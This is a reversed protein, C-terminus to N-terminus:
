TASDSCNYTCLFLLDVPQQSQEACNQVDLKQPEQDSDISIVVVNVSADKRLAYWQQRILQRIQKNILSRM